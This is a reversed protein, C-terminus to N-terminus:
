THEHRHFFGLRRSAVTDNPPHNIRHICRSVNGMDDPVHAPSSSFSSVGRFSFSLYVRLFFHFRSCPRSSASKAARETCFVFAVHISQAVVLCAPVAFPGSFFVFLASLAFCCVARFSSRSESTRTRYRESRFRSECALGVLAAACLSCNSGFMGLCACLWRPCICHRYRGGRRSYNAVRDLSVVQGERNQIRIRCQFRSSPTQM